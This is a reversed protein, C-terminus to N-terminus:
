RARSASRSARDTEQRAAAWQQYNMRGEHFADDVADAEHEIQALLNSRDSELGLLRRDKLKKKSARDAALSRWDFLNKIM